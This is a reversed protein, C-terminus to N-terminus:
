DRFFGSCLRNGRGPLGWCRASRGSEVSLDLPAIIQIDRGDPQRYRKEIQRGEILIEGPEPLPARGRARDSTRSASDDAVPVEGSLEDMLRQWAEEPLEDFLRVRDDPNIKDILARMEEAPLSHLLVYQHYYPFHAIIAAALDTPLHRFLMQQQEFALDGLAAAASGADSTQLM